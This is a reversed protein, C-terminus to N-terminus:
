KRDLKTTKLHALMEELVGLREELEENYKIDKLQLRMVEEMSKGIM